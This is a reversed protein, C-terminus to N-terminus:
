IVYNDIFTNQYENFIHIVSCFDINTHSGVTKGPKTHSWRDLRNDINHAILICWDILNILLFFVNKLKKLHYLFTLRNGNKLFLINKYYFLKIVDNLYYQCKQLLHLLYYRHTNM